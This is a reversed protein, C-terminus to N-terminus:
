QKNGTITLIKRYSGLKADDCLSALKAIISRVKENARAKQMLELNSWPGFSYFINPNDLSQILTGKAYPNVAIFAAALEKEWINKFEMEKNEKVKWYALTYFDDKM